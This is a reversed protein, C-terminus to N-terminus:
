FTINIILSQDLTLQCIISFLGSSGLPLILSNYDSSEHSDTARNEAENKGTRLMGSLLFKELDGNQTNRLDYIILLCELKYSYVLWGGIPNGSVSYQTKNLSAPFLGWLLYDPTQGEGPNPVLYPFVQPGTEPSEQPGSLLSPPSFTYPKFCLPLTLSTSIGVQLESIHNSILAMWNFVSSCVQLHVVSIKFLQLLIYVM